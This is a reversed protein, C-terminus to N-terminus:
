LDLRLPQDPDMTERSATSGDIARGGDEDDGV